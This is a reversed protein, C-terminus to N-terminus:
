RDLTVSDKKDDFARIETSGSGDSMDVDRLSEDLCPSFLRQSGEGLSAFSQTTCLTRWLRRQLASFCARRAQAQRTGPAVTGCGSLTGSPAFNHRFSAWFLTPLWLCSGLEFKRRTHHPQVNGIGKNCIQRRRRPHLKRAEPM